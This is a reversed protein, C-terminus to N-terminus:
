NYLGERWGVHRNAEEQEERGPQYLLHSLGKGWDTGEGAQEVAARLDRPGPWTVENSVTLEPVRVATLDLTEEIFVEVRLDPIVSSLDLHVKHEYWGKERQLLEDYHLTFV